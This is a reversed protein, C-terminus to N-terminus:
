YGYEDRTDNIISELEFEDCNILANIIQSTKKAFVKSYSIDDYNLKSVIFQMMNITKAIEAASLVDNAFDEASDVSVRERSSWKITATMVQDNTFPYTMYIGVSSDKFNLDCLQNVAKRIVDYESFSIEFM